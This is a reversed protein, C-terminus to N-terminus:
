YTFGYFVVTDGKILLDKSIDDTDDIRYKKYTRDYAGRKYIKTATATRKIYEGKPLDKIKAKKM